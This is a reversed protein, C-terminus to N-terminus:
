SATNGAWAPIVRLWAGETETIPLTGRASPSRSPDFGGSRPGIGDGTTVTESGAGIVRHAEPRRLWRAAMLAFVRRAYSLAIRWSSCQELQERTQWRRGKPETPSKGAVRRIFTM